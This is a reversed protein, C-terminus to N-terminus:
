NKEWHWRSNAAMRPLNQLDHRICILTLYIYFKKYKELKLRCNNFNITFDINSIGNLVCVLLRM